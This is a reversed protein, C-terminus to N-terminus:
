ADHEAMRLASAVLEALRMRADQSMQEIEPAPQETNTSPNTATTIASANSQVPFPGSGNELIGRIESLASLVQANPEDLAREQLEMNRQAFIQDILGELRQLVIANAAVHRAFQQRLIIMEAGDVASVKPMLSNEAVIAVDCALEETMELLEKAWENQFTQHEIIDNLSNLKKLIDSDQLSSNPQHLNSLAAEVRGVVKSVATTQDSLAEQLTRADLQPQLGLGMTDVKEDIKGLTQLMTLFLDDTHFQTMIAELDSPKLSRLSGKEMQDTLATVANELTQLDHKASVENSLAHVSSSLKTFKEAITADLGGFGARVKELFDSFDQSTVHDAAPREMSDTLHTLATKLQPLTLGASVNKSIQAVNDSLASLREALKLENADPLSPKPVSPRALVKVLTAVEELRDLVKASGADLKVQELVRTLSREADEVRESLLDFRALASLVEDMKKVARQTEPSPQPVPQEFTEPAREIPTATDALGAPLNGSCSIAVTGDDLIVLMKLGDIERIQQPDISWEMDDGPSALLHTVMGHELLRSLQFDSTTLQEAM